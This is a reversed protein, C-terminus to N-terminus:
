AGILWLGLKTWNITMFWNSFAIAIACIGVSILLYFCAWLIPTISHLLKRM